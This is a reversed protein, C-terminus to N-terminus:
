NSPTAILIQSWKSDVRLLCLKECGHPQYIYHIQLHSIIYETWLTLDPLIVSACQNCWVHCSFICNSCECLMRPLLSLTSSLLIAVWHRERSLHPAVQLGHKCLKCAPSRLCELYIDVCGGCTCMQQCRSCNRYSAGKKCTQLIGLMVESETESIKRFHAVWSLIIMSTELFKM